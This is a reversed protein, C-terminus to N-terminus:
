TAAPLSTILGAQTMVALTTLPVSVVLASALVGSRAAVSARRGQFSLAIGALGTVVALGELTTAVSDPFTAPLPAGASPGLPAGATRTIVWIVFVAANGLIGAVALWRSPFASVLPGWGIQGVAFTVFTWGYLTSESFQYSVTSAHIAGAGLSLV